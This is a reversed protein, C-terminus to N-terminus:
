RYEAEVVAVPAVQVHEGGEGVHDGEACERSEETVPQQSLDSGLPLIMAANGHRM